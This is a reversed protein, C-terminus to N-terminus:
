RNRWIERIGGREGISVTYMKMKRKLEEINYSKPNEEVWVHVKTKRLRSIPFSTKKSSRFFGRIADKYGCAIIDGSDIPTNLENLKFVQVHYSKM